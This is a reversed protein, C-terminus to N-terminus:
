YEYRLLVSRLGFRQALEVWREGFKGCTAVLVEEGSSFLNTVAAEMAGTGSSAFLYAQDPNGLIWKLRSMVDSLIAKFEATRHHINADLSATLADPYVSVPGPTFLRSKIM